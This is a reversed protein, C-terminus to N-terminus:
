WIWMLTHTCAPSSGLSLVLIQINKCFNWLWLHTSNNIRRLLNQFTKHKLQYQIFLKRVTTLNSSTISNTYVLTIFFHDFMSSLGVLFNYNKLAMQSLSYELTTKRSFASKGLVWFISPLKNLSAWRSYVWKCKTKMLRWEFGWQRWNFSVRSVYM